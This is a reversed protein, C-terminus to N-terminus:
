FFSTVTTTNRCRLMPHGVKGNAKNKAIINLNNQLEIFYKYNQM